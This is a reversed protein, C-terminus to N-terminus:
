NLLKQITSFQRLRIWLDLSELDNANLTEEGANTGEEKKKAWSRARALTAVMLLACCFQRHRLQM